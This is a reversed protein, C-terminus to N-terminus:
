QSQFFTKNPTWLGNSQNLKHLFCPPWEENNQIENNNNNNTTTKNNNNNNNNKPPPPERPINNQNASAAQWNAAQFGKNKSVSHWPTLSQHRFTVRGNM